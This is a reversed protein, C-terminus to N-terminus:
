LRSGCAVLQVTGSDVCIIAIPLLFAFSRNYHPNTEAWCCSQVATNVLRYTDGMCDVMDRVSHSKIFLFDSRKFYHIVPCGMNTEFRAFADKVM